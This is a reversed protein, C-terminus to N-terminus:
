KKAAPKRRTAKAKAVALATIIWDGEDDQQADVTVKVGKKVEDYDVDVGEGLWMKVKAGDADTLDFIEDKEQVKVVSYEGGSIETAEEDDEDDEEEEEDDDEEEDEDDDDDEEEEEDDEDEDDDEEEDEDDDEDEEDEEDDDKVTLRRARALLRSRSMTTTKTTTMMKWHTSRM